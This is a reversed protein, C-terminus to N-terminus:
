KLIGGRFEKQNRPTGSYDYIQASKCNPLSERKMEKMKLLKFKEDDKKEIPVPLRSEYYILRSNKSMQALQETTLEQETIEKEESSILNEKENGISITQQLVDAFKVQDEKFKKSKSYEIIKHHSETSNLSPKYIQPCYGLKSEEYFISDKEEERPFICQSRTVNKGITLGKSNLQEKSDNLHSLKVKAPSTNVRTFYSLNLSNNTSPTKKSFIKKSVFLNAKNSSYNFSTKENEKKRNDFTETSM